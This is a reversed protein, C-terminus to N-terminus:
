NVGTMMATMTPASDATITDSSYTRSLGVYPFQDVALKGSVGVSYIRTATVTSVGMGDGVFFIVNKATTPQGPTTQQALASSAPLAFAAACLAIVSSLHKPNM